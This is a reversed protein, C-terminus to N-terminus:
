GSGATREGLAEQAQTLQEEVDGVVLDPAVGSDEISGGSPTYYRATTFKVGYGEPLPQITQVTGKGFTQEGVIQGRDRDKVAGAVIESASASGEDVLVVLPADIAGGQADYTVRDGERQQVSVVPGDEIFVSAVDIAEDLLGGPNGRLDLVYGDAGQEDLEAVADRVDQGVDDTFQILRVYGAGDDLLRSEVNPLDIEARTVTVTYRGREGGDLTLEVDTGAEGSVVAVLEEITTDSVDEGDVEVIREGASIGAEEAPAGEIVSVIVPGDERSELVLGVGSFQGQLAQSLREYSQEDYLHAYPDDLAEVMGQAAAEVLEDAAPPDVADGRLEDYLSLVPELERVADPSVEGSGAGATSLGLQFSLVLLVLVGVVGGAVLGLSRGRRNSRDLNVMIQWGAM